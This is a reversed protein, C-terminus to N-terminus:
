DLEAFVRSANSRVDENLVITGVLPEDKTRNILQVMGNDILHKGEAQKWDGCFNLCGEREIRTGIKKIESLTLDEAEDIIMYGSLSLGKMYYPIHNELRGEKYMRDAQFEGLPFHQIITQFLINTKEEFTGPLAGIDKGGMDNNRVLVMKPYKGKEEVADVGMTTVLKTKGSGYTGAIIRIPIDDNNLLDLACAQLDNRPTIVKKPPLKLRVHSEGDWRRIHEYGSTRSDTEDEIILYENIHLNLINEDPNKIIQSVIHQSEIDEKSVKLIRYGTYDDTTNLGQMMNEYEVNDFGCRVTMGMDNTLITAKEEGAVNVIKQDNDNDMDENLVFSINDRYRDIIKIANRALFSRESDRHNDKHNDLERLVTFPVVIMDGNLIRQEVALPSRMWVSTDVVYKKTM